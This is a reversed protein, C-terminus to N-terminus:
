LKKVKFHVSDARIINCLWYEYFRPWRNAIWEAAMFIHHWRTNKNEGYINRGEIMIRKSFVTFEKNTYGTEDFMFYSAGRKHQLDHWLSAASFHPMIIEVMGHRKCVRLMEKFAVDPNNCHELVSDCLVWDCSNSKIPLKEVSAVYDPKLKPDIDITKFGDLKQWAGIKLRIRIM